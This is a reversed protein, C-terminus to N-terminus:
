AAAGLPPGRHAEPAPPRYRQTSRPQGLVRCFQREPVSLAQEAVVGKLRGNVEEVAKLRKLRDVEMGGYEWRLHTILQEPSIRRKAM